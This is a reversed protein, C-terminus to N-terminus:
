PLTRVMLLQSLADRTWGARDFLPAAPEPCLAPVRWTRGPHRTTLAALLRAAHGRRRAEPRTVIARVVITAAAPDSIAAWADDLRYGAGPPGTQGLTEGSVQWPLDDPGFAVLARAVERVDTVHLAEAEGAAPTSAAVAPATVAAAAAPHTFSVLRHRTEFGNRRYLKVAPANSEIVELVMAREGRARAAELLREVCWTGAGRGRAEPVIAMGALRSTWGRRAVLAVAVAAGDELVVVSAAPDVSDQRMAHLLTTATFPIKVVYDSFGRDLTAAADDLGHDLLSRTTWTM